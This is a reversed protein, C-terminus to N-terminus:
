NRSIRQREAGDKYNKVAGNFKVKTERQKPPCKESHVSPPPPPPNKLSGDNKKGQKIGRKSDKVQEKVHVLSAMMTMQEQFNRNMADMQRQTSLQFALFPDQPDDPTSRTPLPLRGDYDVDDVKANSPLGSSTTFTRYVGTSDTEVYLDAYDGSFRKKRLQAGGKQFWNYFQLRLQSRYIRSYRGLKPQTFTSVLRSLPRVASESQTV